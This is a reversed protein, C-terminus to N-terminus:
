SVHVSLEEDSHGIVGVFVLRDVSTVNIEMRSGNSFRLTLREAGPAAM